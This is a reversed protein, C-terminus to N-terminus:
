WSESSAVSPLHASDERGANGNGLDCIAEIMLGNGARKELSLAEGRSM